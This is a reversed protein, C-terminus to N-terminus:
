KIFIMKHFSAVSETRLHSIYVGSSVIRGEDDCGEWVLRHIGASKTNSILSRVKQGTLSFIDLEVFSEDPLMFEISTQHNFPNPYNRRIEAADPLEEATDVSAFINEIRSVGGDTGLWLFGDFDEAISYVNKGALGNSITYTTLHEGDIKSVGNDTGIWKVGYKDTTIVHIYNGGLGNENNYHTWNRDVEYYGVHKSLGKDTGFWQIDDADIHVANVKNSLIDTSRMDIMPSAGTFGDFRLVGEKELGYYGIGDSNFDIANFQSSNFYLYFWEDYPKWEEGTLTCAGKDTGFWRVHNEDVAVSLVNDSVLESNDTRFPASITIDDHTITIASVGNDTAVWLETNDDYVDFAMANVRNSALSDDTTYTKWSTGDFNTLGNDTGFWIMGYPDVLIARVTSDALESNEVTFNKWVQAASIGAFIFIITLIINIRLFKM